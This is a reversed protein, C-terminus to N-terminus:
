GQPDPKAPYWITVPLLSDGLKMYNVMVGVEYPGDPYFTRSTKAEVDTTIILRLLILIIAPILNKYLM